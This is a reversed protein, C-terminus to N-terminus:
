EQKAEKFGALQSRAAKLSGAINPLEVSVQSVSLRTISKLMAVTGPNEADFSDSVWVQAEGLASQFVGQNGELLAMQAIQLKLVLNQRLFYEEKPPLIRKIEVQDRRFDVLNALKIGADRILGLFQALYGAAETNPDTVSSPAQYTPLTRHLLPVQSVLASLELYVGQIDPSGVAKLAAIDRALAERLGHATLGDTERIIEDASRLLQLASNADQEMLVRQNAMRVLYEVEAYVWDQSSTGMRSQIAALSEAVGAQFQQMQEEDTVIQANMEANKATMRREVNRLENGLTEVGAEIQAVRAPIPDVQTSAYKEKYIEYAPWSAIGIAVLALLLALVSGMGAGSSKKLPMAAKEQRSEIHEFAQELKEDVKEDLPGTTQDSM